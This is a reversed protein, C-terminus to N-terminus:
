RSDHADVPIGNWARAQSLSMARGDPPLQEASEILIGGPGYAEADFAHLGLAECYRRLMPATLREAKRRARYARVDEFPQVIGFQDFSWGGDDVTVSLSRVYNLFETDRPGSLEFQVAGYRGPAGDRGPHQAQVRLALGDCMLKEALYSSMTTADTGLLSCSFYAVWETGVPILLERPYVGTTLPELQHLLEPFPESLRNVRVDRGLRNEWRELYSAVVEVDTRVYGASSTIPAFGAELIAEETM